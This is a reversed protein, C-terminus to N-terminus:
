ISFIFLYFSWNTFIFYYVRFSTLIFSFSFFFYIYFFFFIKKIGDFNSSIIKNFFILNLTSLLFVLSYPRTEQSYKILYINISVLIITLFFSNNKSVQYSLIGLLPISLVGFILPVQRAIEPKYSFIELYKKLVINFLPPSQDIHKSRNFTDNISINPDAVWFSLMEDLWYDEFNLQYFRLLFGFFIIIASGTLINKRNVINM